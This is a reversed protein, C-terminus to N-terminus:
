MGNFRSVSRRRTHLHIYQTRLNAVFIFKQIIAVAHRTRDTHHTTMDHSDMVRDCQLVSFGEADRHLQGIDHAVKAGVTHIEITTVDRFM